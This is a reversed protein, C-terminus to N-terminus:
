PTVNYINSCRFVNGHYGSPPYVGSPPYAIPPPPYAGHSPYPVGPPPYGQPPYGYGEHPYGYRGGHMMNSFLGRDKEEHKDKGGGM